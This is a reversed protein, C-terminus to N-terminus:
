EAGAESVLIVHNTTVSLRPRVPAQSFGEALAKLADEISGTVSGSVDVPWDSETLFQPAPWGQRQAWSRLTTRLSAQVPWTASASPSVASAITKSRPAPRNTPSQQAVAAQTLLAAGLLVSCALRKVMLYPMSTVGDVITLLKRLEARCQGTMM